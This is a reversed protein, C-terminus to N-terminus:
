RVQPIEEGIHCDGLVGGSVGALPVVHAVRVQPIEEGIHCDGLVGGSLGGPTWRAELAEVQLRGAKRKRTGMAQGERDATSSERAAARGWTSCDADRPEVQWTGAFIGGAATERANSEIGQSLM